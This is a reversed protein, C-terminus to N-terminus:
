GVGLNTWEQTMGQDEYLDAGVSARRGVVPRCCCRRRLVGLGAIGRKLVAQQARNNATSGCSIAFEYLFQPMSLDCGSLKSVSEGKGEELYILVKVVWGCM